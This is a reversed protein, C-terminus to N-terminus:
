ITSAANPTERGYSLGDFGGCMNQLAQYYLSEKLYPRPKKKCKNKKKNSGKYKPLENYLEQEALFSDARTLASVLWGYLFEYMYWYIYYYEHASYLELEFGSLLYMIMIRLTHYLIWTGFCALHSRSLNCTMFINHIHLDVREAEDQLATFEDLLHALKDRQRARNHGCLQLFNSFPRTCHTFFSEVYTKAQQNYLISKSVLAPPSIFLKAAEKLIDKFTPSGANMIISYSGVYLLQLASRSLICPSEKSFEIFFDLAQNYAVISQVNILGKLREVMNVFYGLAESRPKIKTYRPFTPPLLRQNILPEFGLAPSLDSSSSYSGLCVTKNMVFLMDSAIKLKQNLLKNVDNSSSQVDDKRQRFISLIQYLARVFKIRSYLAVIEEVEISSQVENHKARTRKHLDEEVEQLMGIARQESIDPYLHYGYQMSQFDEEECVMAKHIYEKIIELLKYISLCFAKLARDEILYPKHLYLNTFVTQALSHGELWSVLCAFTTDIIGILDANSIDKLKLSGDEISQDFTKAKKNGRNCLMGADMKPDMMEIASMAEFLGFLSDHLLEGLKLDNVSTLFDKTIDVWYYQTKPTCCSAGNYPEMYEM